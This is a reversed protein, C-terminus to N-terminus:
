PLAYETGNITMELEIAEAVFRRGAGVMATMSSVKWRVALQCGYETLPAYVAYLPQFM